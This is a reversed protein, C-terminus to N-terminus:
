NRCAMVTFTCLGLWQVALAIGLPRKQISHLCTPLMLSRVMVPRSKAVLNWHFGIGHVRSFAQQTGLVRSLPPFSFSRPRATAWSHQPCSVHVVWTEAKLSVQLETTGLKRPTGHERPFITLAIPKRGLFFFWHVCLINAQRDAEGWASKHIRPCFDRDQM